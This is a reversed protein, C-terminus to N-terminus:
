SDILDPKSPLTISKVTPPPLNRIDILASDSANISKPSNLISPINSPPFPSTQLLGARHMQLWHLAIALLASVISALVAVLDNLYPNVKSVDLDGSAGLWTIFAVLALRIAGTLILWAAQAM